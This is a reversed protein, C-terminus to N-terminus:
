PDNNIMDMVLVCGSCKTFVSSRTEFDEMAYSNGCCLMGEVIIIKKHDMIVAIVFLSLLPQIYTM